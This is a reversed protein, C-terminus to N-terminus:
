LSVSAHTAATSSVFGLLFFLPLFEHFIRKLKSTVTSNISFPCHWYCIM